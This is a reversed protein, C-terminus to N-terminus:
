SERIVEVEQDPELHAVTRVTISCPKRRVEVVEYKRGPPAHIVDGVEVDRAFTLMPPGEWPGVMYEDDPEIDWLVGYMFLGTFERRAIMDTETMARTVEWVQPGDLLADGEQVDRVKLRLLEAHHPM